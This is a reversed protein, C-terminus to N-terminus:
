RIIIHCRNYINKKTVTIKKSMDSDLQQMLLGRQINMKRYNNKDVKKVLERRYNLIEGEQEENLFMNLKDKDEGDEAANFIGVYRRYPYQHKEENYKGETIVHRIYESVHSFEITENYNKTNFEFYFAYGDRLFKLTINGKSPINLTLLPHCQCCIGFQTDATNDVLFNGKINFNSNKIKLDIKSSWQVFLASNSEKDVFGFAKAIDYSATLKSDCYKATMIVQGNDFYLEGVENTSKDYIKVRSSENVEEVEELIFGFTNLFIRDAFM